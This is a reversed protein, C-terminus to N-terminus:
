GHKRGFLHVVNGIAPEDVPFMPQGALDQNRTARDLDLGLYIETTRSSKHGLMSQVRRLAGDYGRESLSDFYARAGSRRMTHEGEGKTEYGNKALIRQVIRHPKSLSREPNITGTGAIWKGGPGTRMDRNRTPILFHNPNSAGNEALWTLHERMLVSLESAIPMVDWRKTKVRYIEIEAKAVHVHKLQLAQQESARLFLYLGTGLVIRELPHHCQSFLSSWESRPVRTRLVEPVSINRWGFLPDFDLTVYRRARLWKFFQKYVQLKQNRTSPHWLYTAFVADMSRHNIKDVWPDGIVRAMLNLSSLTSKVTGDSLQRARMHQEYEDIAASLRKKSM